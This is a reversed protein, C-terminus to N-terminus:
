ALTNPKLLTGNRQNGVYACLEHPFGCAESTELADVGWSPGMTAAYWEPPVITVDFGSTLERPLYVASAVVPPGLEKHHIIEDRYASMAAKARDFTTLRAREKVM